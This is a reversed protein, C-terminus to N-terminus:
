ADGDGGCDPCEESDLLYEPVMTDGYPHWEVIEVEVWGEGKCTPCKM